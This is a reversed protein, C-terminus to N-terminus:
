GKLCLLTLHGHRWPCCGKELIGIGKSFLSDILNNVLLNSHAMEKELVRFLEFFVKEETIVIRIRGILQPSRMLYRNICIPTNRTAFHQVYKGEM